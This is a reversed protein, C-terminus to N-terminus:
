RMFFLQFITHVEAIGNVIPGLAQSLGSMAQALSFPPCVPGVGFSNFKQLMLLFLGLNELLIM